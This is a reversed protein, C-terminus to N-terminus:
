VTSSFKVVTLQKDNNSFNLKCCDRLANRVKSLISETTFYANPPPENM